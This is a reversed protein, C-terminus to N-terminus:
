QGEGPGPAKPAAGRIFISPNQKLETSIESLSQVTDNLNSILQSFAPLTQTQITQLMPSLNQSAKQTNLIISNLKETDKSLEGTVNSLNALTEKISKQNDKDLVSEISDSIRQFSTSIQTLATDLRVFISPATPIVPYREGQKAVLPRLDGGRDKLAIFVLGTIGRTALVAVTGQTIPTEVNINLLMEVLHPDHHNLKIRKVTGVNVGNYEVPSDIGLGSVSEQMEVRYVAYRVSTLGASLWIIAIVIATILSIVFAGVVTYKANTEMYIDTPLSEVGLAM